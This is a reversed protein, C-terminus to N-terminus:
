SVMSTSQSALRGADWFQIDYMAAFQRRRANGKWVAERAGSISVDTGPVIEPVALDVEVKNGLEGSM